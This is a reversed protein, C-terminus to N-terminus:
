ITIRWLDPPRFNISKRYAILQNMQVTLGMVVFLWRTNNNGKVWCRNLDFIEKYIGQMTEVCYDLEKYIQKHHAQRIDAIM